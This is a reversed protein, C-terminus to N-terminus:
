EVESARRRTRPLTVGGIPASVSRGPGTWTTLRSGAPPYAANNRTPIARRAASIRPERGVAVVATTRIATMATTRVAAGDDRQETGL